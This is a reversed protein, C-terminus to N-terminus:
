IPNFLGFPWLIYWFATFDFQGFLSYVIGINKMGLGDFIYMGLNSKKTHFNVM